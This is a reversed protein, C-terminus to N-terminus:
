SQRLVMAIENDTPIDRVVSLVIGNFGLFNWERPTSGLFQPAVLARTVV